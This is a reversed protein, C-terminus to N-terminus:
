LTAGDPPRSRLSSLPSKATAGKSPLDTSINRKHAARMPLFVYNLSIGVVVALIALYLVPSRLAEPEKRIIYVLAAALVGIVAVRGADPGNVIPAWLGFVAMAILLGFLVVWPRM